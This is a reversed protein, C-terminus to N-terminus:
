RTQPRLEVVALNDHFQVVNQSETRTPHAADILNIQVGAASLGELARTLGASEPEGWDRQRFDSVIHLIRRDLAAKDFVARAAEVGKLLEIRLMSCEVDGLKQQLEAVTQENLRQDFRVTEPNTLQ